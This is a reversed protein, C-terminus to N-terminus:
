RVAYRLQVVGDSFRKTGILKLKATRRAPAILPIGEGIFVPIVSIHFEDIQGADLFAAIVGGGGMIWIDKGRRARLRRAFTEIPENIFEVGQPRPDPIRHTLVYNKAEFGFGGSLDGFKEIAMDYTNRGWLLTDISRFFAPMGYDGKPRPRDLWDYSGDKRAIFGDASTAIRVIIKPKPMIRGNYGSERGPTVVRWLGDDGPKRKVQEASSLGVTDSDFCILHAYEFVAPEIMIHKLHVSPAVATGGAAGVLLLSDSFLPALSLPQLLAVALDYLLFGALPLAFGNLGGSILKEGIVFGFV